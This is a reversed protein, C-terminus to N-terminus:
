EGESTLIRIHVYGAQGAADMARVVFQHPTSADASILLPLSTDGKGAVEIAHKVTVLQADALVADNVAIQGDASISVEISQAPAEEVTASSSPLTLQLPRDKQFTTSVMFFILLLFVVDILPTLNISVEERSQRRFKM